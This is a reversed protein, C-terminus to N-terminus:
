EWNGVQAAWWCLSSGWGELQQYRKEPDIVTPQPEQRDSPVDGKAKVPLLLVLLLLFPFLYHKSM